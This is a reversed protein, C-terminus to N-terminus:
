AFRPQPLRAVDSALKIVIAKWCRAIQAPTLGCGLAAGAIQADGVLGHAADVAISVIEDDTKTFGEGAGRREAKLQDAWQRAAEGLSDLEHRSYGEALLLPTTAAGASQELELMTRGLAQIRRDAATLTALSM